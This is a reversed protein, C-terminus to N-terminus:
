SCIFILQAFMQKRVSVEQDPDSCLKILAATCALGLSRQNALNPGEALKERRLAWQLRGRVAEVARGLPQPTTEIGEEENGEAEIPSSVCHADEVWDLWAKKVEWGMIRSEKKGNWGIQSLARAALRRILSDSSYTMAALVPIAGLKAMADNAKASSGSLEAVRAIFFQFLATGDGCLKKLAELHRRGEALLSQRRAAEVERTSAHALREESLNDDSRQAADVLM